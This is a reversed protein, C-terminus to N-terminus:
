PQEHRAGTFSSSAETGAGGRASDMPAGGPDEQRGHGHVRNNMDPM